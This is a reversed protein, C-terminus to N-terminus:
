RNPILFTRIINTTTKQLLASAESMSEEPSMPRDTISFLAHFGHHYLLESGDGLNGCLGICPVHYKLALQAVGFPTKGSQTQADISGEGTFVLDAKAIANELTSCQIVLDVGKMLTANLFALLGGGLGGAAGAGPRNVISIGTHQLAIDAFHALARDLIQVMEPTAGKQPGYVASAGNPGCLPNNVDCAVRFTAKHLLPHRHSADIRTLNSLAAGGLPLERGDKDFFQYGLAQLMGVGGDNTASGGIGLIFQTCGEDLAAKILEGFGYTNTILPNRKEKPVLALGSSIAMEIVATKDDGMKGWCADIPNMLPDHVRCPILTGNSSDILAQMTGEGGDAMPVLICQAQPIVQHIGKEIAIAADKASISEKFSDPAIVIIM